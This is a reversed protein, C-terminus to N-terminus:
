QFKEIKLIKSNMQRSQLRNDPFFIIPPNRSFCFITEPCRRSLVAILVIGGVLMGIWCSSTALGMWFSLDDQFGSINLNLRPVNFSNLINIQLLLLMIYNVVTRQRFMVPLHYLTKSKLPFNELWDFCNIENMSLIFTSPIAQFSYSLLHHSLLSSDIVSLRWKPHPILLSFFSHLVDM